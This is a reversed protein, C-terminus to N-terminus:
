RSRDNSWTGDPIGQPFDEISDSSKARRTWKEAEAVMQAALIRSNAIPVAMDAALSFALAERFDATMANTDTVQKIFLLYIEEADSHMTKGEIRYEVAGIGQDNNYAEVVRINDAPLQYKYNFGFAPADALRALQVRELAFNWVHGRLLRDRVPAYLVNAVNAANTGDTLATITGEGVKGLASNIIDIVSTAM